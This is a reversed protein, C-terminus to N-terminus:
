KRSVEVDFDPGPDDDRLVIGDWGGPEVILIRENFGCFEGQEVRRPFSLEVRVDDGQAQVFLYYCPANAERLEKHRIAPFLEGQGSAVLRASADGKDSSAVPDFLRDGAREANQYAIRIGTAPNYVSEIGAERRRLYGRPALTQRLMRTGMIWAMMGSAILPDDLVASRRAVVAARAITVLDDVTVGIQELRTKVASAEILVTM